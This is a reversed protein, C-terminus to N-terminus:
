RLTQVFALSAGNTIGPQGRGTSSETLVAKFFPRVLTVAGGTTLGAPLAPTVEFLPTLGAGSATADEVMQFFGYRTPSSGYAFSLYDGAKLTYAAPLGTIRLLRGSSVTHITPTAAGLIVGGPDAQPAWLPYPHVFLTARADRLARVKAAIAAAEAHRMPTLTIQGTWLRAHTDARVVEGGRTRSQTAGPPLDLAVDAVRLGQFFTLALPFSLAM